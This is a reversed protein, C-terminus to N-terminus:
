YYGLNDDCWSQYSEQLEAVKEPHVLALDTREGPDDALNFLKVSLDDSIPMLYQDSPEGKWHNEDTNTLKWDGKRVAWTQKWQWVLLREAEPARLSAGDLTDDELPIGAAEAITPLIDAASVVRSQVQGAELTGPRSMAMPVRIGGEWLSYKGGCLPANNAGTIPSGGNDSLFIVLTEEEQGTAALADLVRGIGDDLAALNALYYKRMSAGDIAGLRSYTEYYARYSGASYSGFALLDDPDYNPIADVEFRDLYAQPVEHILHHVANYALTLFFPRDKRREILAVAEDSLIDTLYGEDYSTEGMDHMLPGLVASTGNPDPTRAKIASSLLWYDHAHANFGLFEDFGHHLPFSRTDNRHFDTGFDNKGIRATLYGAGKLYEAITKVTDPIGPGWDADEDWRFQNKGTNLGARSPSCVPGTTYAQTFVIGSEALRKMHPAEVQVDHHEFGEFDAYGLDDVVILLVNPRGDLTPESPTATQAATDSGDDGADQGSSETGGEWATGSGTEAEPSADMPDTVLTDTEGEENTPAPSEESDTARRGGGNGPPAGDNAAGQCGLLGLTVFLGLLKVQFLFRTVQFWEREFRVPAWATKRGAVGEM